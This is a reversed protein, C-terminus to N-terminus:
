MGNLLLKEILLPSVVFGTGQTNLRLTGNKILSSLVIQEKQTLSIKEQETAKQILTIIDSKANSSFSVSLLFTIISALKAKSM